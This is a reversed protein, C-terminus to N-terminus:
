PLQEGLEEREKDMEETFRRIQENLLGLKILRRHRAPIVICDIDEAGISLLRPDELVKALAILRAAPIRHEKKATSAYNNLHTETVTEGLHESMLRAIEARSLESDKMSKSVAAAIRVDLTAGKVEGKEYGIAPEPVPQKKLLDLLDMTLSDNRAKAM